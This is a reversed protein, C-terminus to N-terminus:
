IDPNRNAGVPTNALIVDGEKNTGKYYGDIYWAIKEITSAEPDIDPTANIINEVDGTYNVLDLKKAM